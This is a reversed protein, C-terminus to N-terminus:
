SRRMGFGRAAGREPQRGARLEYRTLVLVEMQHVLKQQYVDNAYKNITSASPVREEPEEYKAAACLTHSCSCCCADAPTHSAYLRDHLRACM